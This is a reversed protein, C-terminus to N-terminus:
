TNSAFECYKGRWWKWSTWLWDSLMSQCIRSNFLSRSRVSIQDVKIFHKWTKKGEILIWIRNEVWFDIIGTNSITSHLRMKGFWKAYIRMPNISQFRKLYMMWFSHDFVKIMTKWHKPCKSHSTSSFYRFNAIFNVFNFLFALASWPLVAAKRSRFKLKATM